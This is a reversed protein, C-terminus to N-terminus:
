LLGTMIQLFYVTEEMGIRGDVNIDYDMDLSVDPLGTTIQLVRVVEHLGVTGRQQALQRPPLLYSTFTETGNIGLFRTVTVQEGGSLVMNMYTAADFVNAGDIAAFPVTVGDGVMGTVPYDSGEVQIAVITGESADNGNALPTDILITDNTFFYEETDPINTRVSIDQTTVSPLQPTAPELTIEGTAAAITVTQFYYIIAPDLGSVQVQLVGNERAHERASSHKGKLPHSTVTLQETIEQIGDADSYVRLDPIAAQDGNWLVSFSNPTVDTVTIDTIIVPSAQVSSVSFLLFFLAFLFYKVSRM